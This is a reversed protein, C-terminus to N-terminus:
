RYPSSTVSHRLSSTVLAVLLSHRTLLLPSYIMPTVCNFPIPDFADTFGPVRIMATNGFQRVARSGYPGRPYV